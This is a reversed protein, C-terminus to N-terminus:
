KYLTRIFNTLSRQSEQRATAEQKHGPLLSMQGEDQKVVCVVEGGKSITVVARPVRAVHRGAAHEAALLDAGYTRSLNCHNCRISYPELLKVVFRFKMCARCYVDENVTPYPPEYLVTHGCSVLLERRWGPEISSM